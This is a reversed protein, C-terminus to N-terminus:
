AAIRAASALVIRAKYHTHTATTADRASSTRSQPTPPRLVPTPSATIICVEIAPWWARLTGALRDTEPMAAVEVVEEFLARRWQLV